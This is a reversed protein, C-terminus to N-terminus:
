QYYSRTDVNFVGSFDVMEYERDAQEDMDITFTCPMLISKLEEGDFEIHIETDCVGTVKIGEETPTIDDISIDFVSEVYSNSSLIEVEDPNNERLNDILSEQLNRLKYPTFQAADNYKSLNWRFLQPPIQLMDVLTRKLYNISFLTKKFVIEETWDEGDVDIREIEIFDGGKYFYESDRVEVKVYPADKDGVMYFFNDVDEGLENRIFNTADSDQILTDLRSLATLSSSNVNMRTRAFGDEDFYAEYYLGRLLHNVGQRSYVKIAHPKSLLEFSGKNNKNANRLLLRGIVFLDNDTFTQWKLKLLNIANIEDQDKHSVLLRITQVANNNSGIYTALVYAGRDYTKGYFRGMQGHNFCFEDVLCSYDWSLQTLGGQNMDTRVKKFLQEVTLCEEKIHNLLATAFPSHGGKLGDSATAGVSTSYAIFTQFPIHIPQTPTGATTGRGLKTRCADIIIINMQNGASNMEQSISNVEKSKSLAVMGAAMHPAAADKFVICDRLNLHAGHGAFYFVAVDYKGSSLKSIFDGYYTLTVSSDEDLAAEVDDFKLERLVKAVEDADSVATKLEPYSLTETYHDIGIVLAICKM